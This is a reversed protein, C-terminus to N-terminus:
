HQKGPTKNINKKAIKKKVSKMASLTKRYIERQLPRKSQKNDKLWDRRKENLQRAEKEQTATRERIVEAMPKVTEKFVWSNFMSPYGKWSVLYMVDGNEVKEDLIQDIAYYEKIQKKKPKKESSDGLVLQKRKGM